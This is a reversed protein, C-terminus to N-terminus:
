GSICIYNTYNGCCPYVDSAYVFTTCFLPSEVYGPACAIKDSGSKGYVWNSNRTLRWYWRYTSDDQNIWYTRNSDCPAADSTCNESPNVSELLGDLSTKNKTIVGDNDEYLITM